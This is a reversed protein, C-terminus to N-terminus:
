NMTILLLGFVFKGRVKTSKGVNVFDEPDGIDYFNWFRPCLLPYRLGERCVCLCVSYVNEYMGHDDM